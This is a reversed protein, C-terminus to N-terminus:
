SPGPTIIPAPPLLLISWGIVVAMAILCALIFLWMELRKDHRLVPVTDHRETLLVPVREVSDTAIHWATYSVRNDQLSLILHTLGPYHLRAVQIDEQSPLPPSAPHSHYIGVLELNEREAQYLTRLMEQPNLLFHNVPDSATNAIPHVRRITYETGFLLGCAEQPTQAKVDLVIQHLLTPSLVMGPM